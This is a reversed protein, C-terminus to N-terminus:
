VQIWSGSKLNKVRVPWQPGAKGQLAFVKSQSAPVDTAEGSLKDKALWGSLCLM